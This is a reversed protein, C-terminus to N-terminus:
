PRGRKSFLFAEGLLLLLVLAALLMTSERYQRSEGQLAQEQGQVPFNLDEGTHPLSSESHSFMNVALFQSEGTQRNQARYFGTYGLRPLHQDSADVTLPQALSSNTFPELLLEGHFSAGAPRARRQSTTLSGSFFTAGPRSYEDLFRAVVIPLAPSLPLSSYALPFRWCLTPQGTSVGKLTLTPGSSTSLLITEQSSVKWTTDRQVRLRGWEVGMDKLLPHDPNARLTEVPWDQAPSTESIEFKTRVLPQPPLKTEPPCLLLDVTSPEPSRRLNEWELLEVNQTSLLARLLFNAKLEATVAVKLRQRGFPPAVTFASDDITLEPAPAPLGPVPSLRARFLSAQEASLRAAPFSEQFTQSGHAPLLVSAEFIVAEIQRPDDSRMKEVRFIRQEASSSFNQVRAYLWPKDEPLEVSFATLGVNGQVAEGCWSFQLGPIKLEDPLHDSFLWVTAKQDAILSAFYPRLTASRDAAEVSHLTSLNHRLLSADSTFSTVIQPEHDIAIIMVEPTSGFNRFGFLGDVAAQAKEVAQEFAGGASMSASRDIALVVKPTEPLLSSGFTAPRALYLAMLALALLQLWLLPNSRLRKAYVGGQSEPAAQRWLFFTTSLRRRPEPRFLYM